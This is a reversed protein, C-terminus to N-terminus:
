AMRGTSLVPKGEPFVFMMDNDLRKKMKKVSDASMSNSVMHPWSVAAGALGGGAGAVAVAVAKDDDGVDVAGGVDVAVGGGGADVAVDGAGVGVAVDEDGAGVGVAVGRGGDGVGVAM